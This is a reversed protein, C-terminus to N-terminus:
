WKGSLPNFSVSTVSAKETTSETEKVVEGLPSQFEQNRALSQDRHQTEKVVEGLPSQFKSCFDLYRVIITEKVM